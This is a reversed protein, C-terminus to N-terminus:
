IPSLHCIYSTRMVLMYASDITWLCWETVQSTNTPKRTKTEM